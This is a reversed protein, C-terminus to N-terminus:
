IRRRSSVVRFPSADLKNKNRNFPTTFITVVKLKTRNSEPSESPLSVKLERTLMEPKKFLFRRGKFLRRRYEVVCSVFRTPPSVGSGPWAGKISTKKIIPIM